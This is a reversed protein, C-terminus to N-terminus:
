LFHHPTLNLDPNAGAADHDSNKHRCRQEEIRVFDALHIENGINEVSQLVEEVVPAHCKQDRATQAPAPEPNHEEGHWQDARQVFPM